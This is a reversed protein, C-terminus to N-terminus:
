TLLHLHLKEKPRLKSFLEYIEDTGLVICFVDKKNRLESIVKTNIGTRENETLM